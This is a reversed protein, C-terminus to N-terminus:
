LVIEYLFRTNSHPYLSTDTHSSFLLHFTNYKSFGPLFSDKKEDKNKTIPTLDHPSQTKSRGLLKELQPHFSMAASVIVPVPKEKIIIEIVM